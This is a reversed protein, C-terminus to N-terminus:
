EAKDKLRIPFYIDTIWQSVPVMQNGSVTYLEYPAGITEYGNEEIWKVLAAYAENLSSYGGFHRTHACLTGGISANAQDAEALPLFVEVDSNSDDFEEDYYRAGLAGCAHLNKKAAEEFLRGFSQGFDGVAMVERIGFIPQKDTEKLDITYTQMITQGKEKNQTRELIINLDHLAIRKEEIEAFLKQSQALLLDAKIGPDESHILEMIEQLSFGNRKYRSIALMTEIQEPAYYRYGTQPDTLIPKLLGIRDYHRLTKLSVRCAQSMKGITFM